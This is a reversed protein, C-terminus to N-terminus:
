LITSCYHFVLPIGLRLLRDKTFLWPGKRDYSAVTFYGALLFFFSMFFSQNISNHITFLIFTITDATCEVYDWFGPGGYTVILHNSIVLITLLIRLNDFFAIREGKEM